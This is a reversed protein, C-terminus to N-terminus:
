KNVAANLSKVGIDSVWGFLTVTARLYAELDPSYKKKWVWFGPNDRVRVSDNYVLQDGAKFVQGKAKPFYYRGGGPGKEEKYGVLWSMNFPYGGYASAVGGQATGLAVKTGGPSSRTKKTEALGMTAYVGIVADTGLEMNLGALKNAAAMSSMAGGAGKFNKLGYATARIMKKKEKSTSKAKLGQYLESGQVAEVDVVEIGQDALTQVFMDYMKDTLEQYVEEEWQLYTQETVETTVGSFSDHMVYGYKQSVYDFRIQFSAIAVKKPAPAKKGIGQNTIQFGCAKASKLLSKGDTENIECKPKAFAPHVVAATLIGIGILRVCLRM